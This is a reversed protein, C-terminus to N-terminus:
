DGYWTTQTLRSPITWTHNMTRATYSGREITVSSTESYGELSVAIRSTDIWVSDNYVSDKSYLPGFSGGRKDDNITMPVNMNEATM